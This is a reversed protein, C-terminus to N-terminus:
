GLRDLFSRATLIATRGQKTLTLLGAKDGTILFDADGAECMALLFDDAPDNSRAIKPLRPVIDANDRIVNVLRGVEAPRFRGRFRPRRTVTRIEDLQYEHTVLVFDNDLWRSVVRGPVSEINLLASLLINTDLIVRM